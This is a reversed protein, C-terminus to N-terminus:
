LVGLLCNAASKFLDPVTAKAGALERDSDALVDAARRMVPTGDPAFEGSPIQLDPNEAAIRRAKMSTPDTDAPLAEGTPLTEAERPMEAGRAPERLPLPQIVDGQPAAEAAQRQLEDVVVARDRAIGADPVFHADQLVQDVNVPEGRLTQDIAQRLAQVHMTADADSVPLGPLTTTEMHRAQNAVLLAAQDTPTFRASLHAMGGFAAGLLADLTRAKLDLPNYQEAQLPNGAANLVARSAAATAMGQAVNGGAGSAVRSALTSGLFPLKLGLAAGVGSIDGVVNAAGADVGQRVLDEASSLQATGVLLAPSIVAQALGGALQGAIQGATGVEGPRPTWYDVANNMVDDHERFYTDQRETGGTLKDAVIPFVSGAMDVARGVEALSRMGYTAAGPLFNSWTGADPSLSPKRSAALMTASQENPFFDFSM